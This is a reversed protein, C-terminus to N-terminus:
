GGGAARSPKSEFRLDGRLKRGSFRWRGGQKVLKDEYVGATVPILAADKRKLVTLLYCRVSATEGQVTIVENAVIHKVPPKGNVLRQESAFKRLAARGRIVKGDVDFTADDTWLEVWDDFRAEDFCASYTGLLERIRDKEELLASM